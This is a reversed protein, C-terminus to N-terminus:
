SETSLRTITSGAPEKAKVIIQNHEPCCIIEKGQQFGCLTPFVSQDLAEIVIVPCDKVFRCTGNRNSRRVTCEDNLYFQTAHLSKYFVSIQIFISVVSVIRFWMEFHHVSISSNTILSLLCITMASSDFSSSSSSASRNCPYFWFFM